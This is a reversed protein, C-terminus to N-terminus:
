KNGNGGTNQNDGAISRHYDIIVDRYRENVRLRCIEKLKEIEEPPLTSWDGREKGSHADSVKDGHTPDGGNRLVSKPAGQKGPKKIPKSNPLKGQGEGEKPEGEGPKKEGQKKANQQSQSQQSAKDEETKILDDLMAVISKETAQTEKGSDVKALREKVESMMKAVTGMPDGYMEQLKKVKAIIEDFSKADMTLGYSKLLFAYSQMAYINRGNKEYLQSLRMVSEAAFSIRDTMNTVLDTYADAAENYDGGAAELAESYVFAKAAQLYTSQTNNQALPKGVAVAEKYKKANYLKWLEGFKSDVSAYARCIREINDQQTNKADKELLATADDSATPDYFGSNIEAAALKREAKLRNENAKKVLAEYQDRTMNEGLDKLESDRSLDQTADAAKTTPETTAPPNDAAWASLAMAFMAM